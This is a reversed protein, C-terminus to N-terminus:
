LNGLEKGTEEAVGWEWGVVTRPTGQPLSNSNPTETTDMHLLLTFVPWYCLGISGERVCPGPEDRHYLLKFHSNCLAARHFLLCALLCAVQTFCVERRESLAAEAMGQEQLTTATSPIAAHPLRKMCVAKGDPVTSTCNLKLCGCVGNLVRMFWAVATHLACGSTREQGSGFVSVLPTPHCLYCHM